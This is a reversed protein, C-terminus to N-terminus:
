KQLGHEKMFISFTMMFTIITIISASIDAIPQAAFVSEVTFFMPLLLTSGIYILKRTLSLKLSLKVNSLATIGDVLVYQFAMPIVGIIFIHIAKLAIEQTTTDSTFLSVFFEGKVMFLLFMFACFSVGMCLIVKFAKEIRERNRAGLNYSIITQTGSTIGSLPGTILLFSSQAVTVASILTDGYGSGGYKQLVANMAIIILSDSAIIIFPSVGLTLIRQIIEKSLPYKKIRIVSKKSILFSFVFLASLIQSIVTAMAAGSIGFKLVKIMFADLIINAVAGAVVSAMAIGAAGQCTIFMNLGIAMLAFFTGSTYITLYTDAMAFLADSGGFWMILPKRFILFLLTLSISFLLLLIFSNYLITEADEKKKQGLKISVLISGGIGIWTGFSSLLTVIPGCIGVAALADNGVLPIQGVFVRDVISYMVNVLQAIMAPIALSFVLKIISDRGLDKQM